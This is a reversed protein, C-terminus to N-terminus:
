TCSADVTEACFDDTHLGDKGSKFGEMVCVGHIFFLVENMKSILKEPCCVESLQSVNVFERDDV